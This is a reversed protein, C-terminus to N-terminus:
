GICRYYCRQSCPSTSCCGLCGRSCAATAPELKEIKGMAILRELLAELMTPSTKLQRSLARLEVVGALAISNKVEILSVM